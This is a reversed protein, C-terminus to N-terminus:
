ASEEDEDEDEERNNEEVDDVLWKAKRAEWTLIDEITNPIADLEANTNCEIKVNLTITAM